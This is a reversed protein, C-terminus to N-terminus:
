TIVGAARLEAMRGESYGLVDHLIYGTAEGLQPAPRRPSLDIGWIRWPVGSHRRGGVEPHPLETFYRREALHPDEVLDKCTVVPFAPVERAQLARALEWRDWASTAAGILQELEDEHQKRESATAFRGAGADLGLVSALASWAQNSDVAIAIWEDQGRTRFVGHPAMQPHRNGRQAPEQGTLSRIMVADPIVALLAELLAVKVHQGEGTRRRHWLAALLAFMAHLGGNPDGYSIGTRQPHGDGYGTVSALGSAFVLPLGLAANSRLPGTDGYGSISVMVLSPNVQRLTQYDLGLKEMVGPSFNEIAVDSRAILDLAIQRGEPTALNVTVSRKEQNYDNFCGSRNPGPEGVMPQILRCMDLHAPNELKIVEAGLRALHRTCLPGAWYWTFDAIRLGELPRATM